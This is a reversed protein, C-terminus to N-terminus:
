TLRPRNPQRALFLDQLLPLPPLAESTTFSMGGKLKTSLNIVRRSTKTMATVNPVVALEEISAPKHESFRLSREL